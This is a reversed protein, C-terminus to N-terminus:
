EYIVILEKGLNKLLDYTKMLSNTDYSGLMEKTDRLNELLQMLPNNFFKNQNFYDGQMLEEIVSPLNVNKFGDKVLKTLSTSFIESVKVSSDVMLYLFDGEQITVDEQDEDTILIRFGNLSLAGQISLLDKMMWDTISEDQMSTIMNPDSIIDMYKSLINGLPRIISTLENVDVTGLNVQELLKYIHNSRERLVRLKIM